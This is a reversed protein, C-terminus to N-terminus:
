GTSKKRRERMNHKGAAVLADVEGRSKGALLSRAVHLVAAAFNHRRLAVEKARSERKRMEEAREDTTLAPASADEALPDRTLALLNFHVEGEAYREVREALVVSLKEGLTGTGHGDHHLLPGHNIPAPQLGDLEWLTGNISSYAVFHNPAEGKAGADGEDDDRHFMEARSFSNHVSRLLDSNTM